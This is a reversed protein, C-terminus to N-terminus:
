GPMELEVEDNETAAEESVELCIIPQHMEPLDEQLQPVTTDIIFRFRM